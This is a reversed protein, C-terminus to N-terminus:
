APSPSHYPSECSHETTPRSTPRTAKMGFLLGLGAWRRVALHYISLSLVIAVGMTLIFRVAVPLDMRIIYFGPVVIAAQHLIYIPLSSESLYALVPGGSDRLRAAFGLLAVVTTYGVVATLGLVPLLRAVVGVSIEKPWVDGDLALWVALLGMSSVFAIAAARTRELRIVREWDPYRALAFGLWLYISYQAFNAWDWLLNQGGPWIPRLFMEVAILAVLPAYLLKRSPEASRELLTPRREGSIEAVDGSVARAFRHRYLLSFTFLYALFWLHSWTFREITFFTPLYELFTETFPTSFEQYGSFSLSFGSRLEYFKIVPAFMVIGAILPVFLRRTREGVMGEIGRKKISAHLSWGALLFFLPMHWFHIVLTVPDLAAVTDAAKIHYFPAVDFTKAVHYFFLLYTAFVRLADMDGRRESM